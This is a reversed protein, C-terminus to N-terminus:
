VSMPNPKNTDIGYKLIAEAVKSRDIAGDDALAKLAALTVWHRDVEFFHRLKERTDSRGFGDTGLTVYRRNILPRIQESFLRIYDTAAVVPGRTDNLCNEVHSLRQKATPNLMNWRMVDNGDRAVRVAAEAVREDVAVPAEGVGAGVAATAAHVLLDGQEEVGAAVGVEGEGGRRVLALGVDDVLDVPGRAIQGPGAAIVLTLGRAHALATEAECGLSEVVRLGGPANVYLVVATAGCAELMTTATERDLLEPLEASEVIRRVLADDAYADGTLRWALGARALLRTPGLPLEVALEPAAVPVVASLLGVVPGVPPLPPWVSLPVVVPVPAVVLVVVPGPVPSGPVVASVPPLVLPVPPVVPPPSSNTGQTVSSSQASTSSQQSHSGTLTLSAGCTQSRGSHRIGVQAPWPRSPAATSHRKPRQVKALTWHLGSPMVQSVGAGLHGPSWTGPTISVSSPLHQVPKQTGASAQSQTRLQSKQASSSSTQTPM